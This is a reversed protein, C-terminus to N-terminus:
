AAMLPQAGLGILWGAPLAALHWLERRLQLIAHQRAFRLTPALPVFAAAVIGWLAGELGGLAYGAAVLVYLAVLRYVNIIALLRPKGLALFAQEAVDYRSAILMLSLVALMPGAGAYRSDYLVGILAEGAAFLFGALGLSCADIPLRAQYYASAFRAPQTRVVESLAPYAVSAALLSLGQKAAGLVLYAISYLGLEHATILGGLILRDGNLAFFALASSVLVWKGFALLEQFAAPDWVFRNRPGPLMLHTLVTRLAAGVLWGGVLARISPDILAWGVVVAVSLLNCVIELQSLRGLLLERRAVAVKTSELGTLVGSLGVAAIVYPLLANGYVSGAPLAGAGQLSALAAALALSAACIAVGRLIQTVWLTDLFRQERGRPSRVICQLIGLDSLLALGSNVVLAIAMIGFVEPALLRTVILSTALRTVQTFGYTFVTWGGASLIRAPTLATAATAAL